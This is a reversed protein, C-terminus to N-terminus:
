QVTSCYPPYLTLSLRGLPRRGLIAGPTVTGRRHLPRTYRDHLPGEFIFIELSARFFDSM